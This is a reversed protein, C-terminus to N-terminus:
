WSYILILVLKLLHPNRFFITIGQKQMECEKNELDLKWESPLLHDKGNQHAMFELVSKAEAMRGKTALWRPSEPM